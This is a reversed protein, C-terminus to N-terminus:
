RRNFYKKLMDAAAERSDAATTKPLPPLKGPESKKWRSKPEDGEPEPETAATEEMRVDHTEDLRFQRTDPSAIRDSTLAGADDELWSSIDLDDAQSEATRAAAEKVDKVVPRKAGGLRHDTVVEFSLPGITLQDGSQLDCDGEVREGNVYSGNKSGFDRLVLRTGSVILACHRRSVAESKPRLHCEDGRGIVFQPVSIPVEKGANSGQVVKLKVQM